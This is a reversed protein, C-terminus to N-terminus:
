LKVIKEKERKKVDTWMQKFKETNKKDYSKIRKM